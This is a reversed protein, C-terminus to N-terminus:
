ADLSTLDRAVYWDTSGSFTFKFSEVELKRRQLDAEDFTIDAYPVLISSASSSRILKCTTSTQSSMQVIGSRGKFVSSSKTLTTSNLLTKLICFTQGEESCEYSLPCPKVYCKLGDTGIPIAGVPGTAGDLGYCPMPSKKVICRCVGDPLVRVAVAVAQAVIAVVIFLTIM